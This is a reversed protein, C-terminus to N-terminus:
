NYNINKNIFEQVFYPALSVAKSGFGNIIYNKKETLHEMVFPRRDKTAPRIGFKVDKIIYDSILLSSLKLKLEDAGAQTCNHVIDHHHYTSGIRQFNATQLIFISKNIIYNSHYNKIEIDMIEGKNLQWGLNKWLPNQSAYAGECFINLEGLHEKPNFIQYKINKKFIQKSKELLLNIDLWGSQNIKLGGYPCIIKDTDSKSIIEIWNKYTIDASKGMWYNQEELDNFPKFIPKNHLIQIQYENEIAKYLQHLVPFIIDALWTKVMRKGTIPNFIGAAVKSSSTLNAEYITISLNKNKALLYALICGVLGFGIINVKKQM